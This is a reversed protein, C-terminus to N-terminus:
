DLINNLTSLCYSLCTLFLRNAHKTSEKSKPKSSKRQRITVKDDNKNAGDFYVSFGKERENNIEDEKTMRKIMVNKELRKKKELLRIYGYPDSKAGGKIDM